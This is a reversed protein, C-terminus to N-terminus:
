KIVGCIMRGGGGGLQDPTDSYNDAGIHIMLAKNKIQKLSKLRPALLPYTASGNPNVVIAPLDGLHGNSYPGEHRNTKDPDYHGGAALAPVIKNNQKAPSCDPNEHIHFGHLRSPLDKLDPTFLLGYPTQSIKISGKKAGNGQPLAEYMSVNVTQAFTSTSFTIFLIFSIFRLLM